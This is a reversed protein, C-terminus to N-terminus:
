LSAFIRLMEERQVANPVRGFNALMNDAMHAPIATAPIICTVAPHGLIFKLYFQAWSSCDLSAALAASIAPRSLCDPVFVQRARTEAPPVAWCAFPLGAGRGHGQSRRMTQLPM